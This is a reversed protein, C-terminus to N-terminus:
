VTLLLAQADELQMRAHELDKVIARNSAVGGVADLLRTRDSAEGALGHVKDNAVAEPDEQDSGEDMMGPGDAVGLWFHTNGTEEVLREELEGELGNDELLEVM